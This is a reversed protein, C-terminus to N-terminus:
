KQEVKRWTADPDFLKIKSAALETKRGFDKEYVIGDHNVVFTMIGSSGYKAPYAILAFGGIMKGKVLYDCAGGRANKGQAKLIRYYYGHFPVPKGSPDGEYGEKRANAVFIGAPSPPEDPRTEWYLGDKKGPESLFRQAYEKLAQGQHAREVYERQADVYALCTQIAGLENRGIRRNLIEEKGAKTDFRWSGDQEVIPIPLPWHNKGLELVQKQFGAKVIVYNEEFMKVAIEHGEKDAFPDGSYVLDKAEPGLIAMLEKSDNNKLARFLANVAEEASKFQKQARGKPAALGVSGYGALILAAVIVFVPAFRRFYGIPKGKIVPFM